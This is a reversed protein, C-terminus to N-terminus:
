GAPFWRGLLFYVLSGTAAVAVWAPAAWRAIARHRETQRRWAHFILTLALVVIVACLATHTSLVAFYLPREWGSGRAPAAITSDVYRFGFGLLIVTIGSASVTFIPHIKVLELRALVIGAVVLVATLAFLRAERMPNALLTTRFEVQGWTAAISADADDHLAHAGLPRGQADIAVIWAAPARRVLAEIRDRSIGFYDIAAQELAVGSDADVDNGQAVIWGRRTAAAALPEPWLSDGGLVFTVLPVDRPLGDALRALQEATTACERLCVAAVFSAVWVRGQLTGVEFREGDPDRLTLEPFAAGDAVRGLAGLVAVAAILACCILVFPLALRM